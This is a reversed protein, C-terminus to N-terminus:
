ESPVTKLLQVLESEETSARAKAKRLEEFVRQAEIERGLARYARALQYLSTQNKPDLRVAAELEGAASAPQKADLLVHGLLAHAGADKANLRIARRLAAIVDAHKAPDGTRNLALAFLYHARANDPWKTAVDRFTTAADAANGRQLQTVGMALQAIPMGRDAQASERLSAEAEAFLGQLAQVIGRELLLAASGPKRELGASLMRLAYENNGHASSFAALSIYVPIAEPDLKLAQQYARLAKDPQGRRDFQEAAGLYAQLVAPRTEPNKLALEGASEFHNTAISFERRETAALGLYLHPVPDLPAVKVVRQFEAEAEAHRNLFWLVTGLNKRAATFNPELEISKQFATAAAQLRQQQVAAVGERFLAQAASDARLPACALVLLIGAICRM